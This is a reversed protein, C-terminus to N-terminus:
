DVAEFRQEMPNYIHLTCSRIDIYWGHLRLQWESVRERIFAFTMLNELSVLVAAQECHRAKVEQPADPMTGEVRLYASRVLSMWPAVFHNGEADHTQEQFLSRVGGCHAHGLVILHEVQLHQVAYELAASTGHYDGEREYPPVLNAVNRIIFLDGPDAQLVIAPDVRSDACAVIAVRPNQGEDVLNEYRARQAQFRGDRFERYGATLKDIPDMVPMETFLPFNKKEARLKFRKCITKWHRSPPV